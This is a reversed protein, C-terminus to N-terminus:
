TVGYIADLVHRVVKAIRMPHTPAPVAQNLASNIRAWFADDDLDSPLRLFWRYGRPRPPAVADHLYSDVDEDLADQETQSRRERWQSEDTAAVTRVKTHHEQNDPFRLVQDPPALWAILAGWGSEPLEIIHPRGTPDTDCRGIQEWHSSPESTAM